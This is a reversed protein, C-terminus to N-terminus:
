RKKPSPLTYTVVCPVTKFGYHVGARKADEKTHWINYSIDLTGDEFLVAWGKVRKITQKKM